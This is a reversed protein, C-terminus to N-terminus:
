VRPLVAEEKRQETVRADTRQHLGVLIAGHDLSPCYRRILCRVEEITMPRCLRLAILVTYWLILFDLRASYSDLCGKCYEVELTLRAEDSIADRGVLQVPGTLGAPTLFRDEAWPFEERLARIVNEPLPRNGVVGM